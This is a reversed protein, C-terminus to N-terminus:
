PAAPTGVVGAANKKQAIAVRCAKMEDATAPISDPAIKGFAECLEDGDLDLVVAVAVLTSASVSHGDGGELMCLAAPSKDVRAALERMTLGAELRAAKIRNKVDM